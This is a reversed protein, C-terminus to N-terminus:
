QKSAGQIQGKAHCIFALGLRQSMLLLLWGKGTPLEAVYTHLAYPLHATARCSAQANYRNLRLKEREYREFIPFVQQRSEATFNPARKRGVQLAAYPGTLETVSCGTHQGTPSHPLDHM